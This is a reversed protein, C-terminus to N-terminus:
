RKSDRYARNKEIFLSAGVRCALDIMEYDSLKLNNKEVIGRIINLGTVIRESMITNILSDKDEM